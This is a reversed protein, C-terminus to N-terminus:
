AEPTNPVGAATFSAATSVVSTGGEEALLHLAIGTRADETVVNVLVAGAEVQHELEDRVQSKTSRGVVLGLVAGGFTGVLAGVLTAHGMGLLSEMLVGALSGGIAGFLGGLMVGRAAGSTTEDIMRHRDRSDADGEAGATSSDLNALIPEDDDEEEPFVDQGPLKKAPPRPAEPARAKVPEAKAEGNEGETDGEELDVEQEDDEEIVEPEPLEFDQGSEHMAADIVAADFERLGFVGPKVKIIPADGRDKKVMTALRSNMTIEPSKGLHSLLEREIAIDTIAKYHLPKGILRLVEVAAETFTM